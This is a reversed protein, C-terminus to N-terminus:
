YNDINNSNNNNDNNNNNNINNSNNNNNNNPRSGRDAAEGGLQRAGAAQRHDGELAMISLSLSLPCIYIYTVYSIYTYYM